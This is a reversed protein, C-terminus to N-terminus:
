LPFAKQLQDLFATFAIAHLAHHAGHGAFEQDSGLGAIADSGVTEGGSIESGTSRAHNALQGREANAGAAGSFADGRKGQLGFDAEGASLGAGGEGFLHGGGNRVQRRFIMVLPGFSPPTETHQGGNIGGDPQFFRRAFGGIQLSFILRDWSVTMSMFAVGSSTKRAM